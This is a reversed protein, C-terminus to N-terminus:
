CVFEGGWLFVVVDAVEEARVLWGLTIGEVDKGMRVNGEVNGAFTPTDTPGPVVANM